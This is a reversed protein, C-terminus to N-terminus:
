PHNKENEKKKNKIVYENWYVALYGSWMTKICVINEPSERSNHKPGM